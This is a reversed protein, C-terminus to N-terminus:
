NWGSVGLRVRDDSEREREVALEENIEGKKGVGAATVKPWRVLVLLFYSYLRRMLHALDALSLCGRVNCDCAVINSDTLLFLNMPMQGIM